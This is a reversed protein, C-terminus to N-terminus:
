MADAQSIGDGWEILWLAIAGDENRDLAPRCVPDPDLEPGDVERGRDMREVREDWLLSGASTMDGENVLGDDDEEDEGEAEPM